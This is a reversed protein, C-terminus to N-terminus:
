FAPLTQASVAKRELASLSNVSAWPKMELESRFLRLPPQDQVPRRSGVPTSRFDAASDLMDNMFPRYPASCACGANRTASFIPM